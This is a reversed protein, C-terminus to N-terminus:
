ATILWSDKEPLDSAALGYSLLRQLVQHEVDNLPADLAVFHVYEAYAGRLQPIHQRLSQTVKRIRFDSLAPSGRFRLMSEGLFSM